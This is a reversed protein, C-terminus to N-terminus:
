LSKFSAPSGPYRRLIGGDMSFSVELKICHDANSSVTYMIFNLFILADWVGIRDQIRVHIM